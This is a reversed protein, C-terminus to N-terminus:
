KIFRARSWPSVIARLYGIWDDGSVAGFARSDTSDSSYDGLLFYQNNALPYENKCGHEGRPEYVVDRYINVEGGGGLSANLLVFEMGSRMRNSSGVVPLFPTHTEYDFPLSGTKLLEEGDVEVSIRCDINSILFRRTVGPRMEPGPGYYIRTKIPTVSAVNPRDSNNIHFIREIVIITKEPVELGSPDALRVYFIFDDGGYQLCLLFKGGTANFKVPVEFQLDFVPLEGPRRMYSGDNQEFGDSPIIKSKYLIGEWEDGGLQSRIWQSSGTENLNSFTSINFGDAVGNSHKKERFIPIRVRRREEANKRYLKGNIKVDGDRLLVTEGPLGVVRKVLDRGKQQPDHFAVVEFREPARFLPTLLDVLVRDGNKEDGRLTPLM